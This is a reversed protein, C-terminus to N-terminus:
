PLREVRLPAKPVPPVQSWADIGDNVLRSVAEEPNVGNLEFIRPFYPVKCRTCTVEVELQTTGSCCPCGDTGARVRLTIEGGCVELSDLRVGPLVEYELETKGYVTEPWVVDAKKTKYTKVIRATCKVM